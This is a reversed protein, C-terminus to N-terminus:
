GKVAGAALGSILSKSFFTFLIIMPVTGISLAAIRAGFDRRYMGDLCSLGLTVTYLEEKNILLMPYLYNNWSNIFTLVGLSAIAPKIFPVVIRFFVGLESCGDIRSSELIEDPVSNMMYQRMWYVGFANAAFPIILSAYNNTWGFQRMEWIFAVLGLQPPVMMLAFVLNTILARGQFRYKAIAFGCMASVLLTLTTLSVAVFASNLYFRYFNTRTLTEINKLLYNGPLLHLGRFLEASEYTAMTLMLYFPILIIMSFVAFFVNLVVAGAKDKGTVISGM